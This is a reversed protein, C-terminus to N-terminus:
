PVVGNGSGKATVLEVHLERKWGAKRWFRKVAQFKSNRKLEKVVHLEINM